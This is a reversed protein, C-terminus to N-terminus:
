PRANGASAKKGRVGVVKFRSHLSKFSGQPVSEKPALGAFYDPPGLSYEASARYNGPRTILFGENKTISITHVAYVEQGPELFLFADKNYAINRIKGQWLVQAGDPGILKLAVFDGISMYRSVFVRTSSLNKLRFKFVVDEGVQFTLKAPKATFELVAQKRTPKSSGTGGFSTEIGFLSYMLFLAVIFISQRKM